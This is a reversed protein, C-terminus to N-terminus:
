RQGHRRTSLARNHDSATWNGDLVNVIEVKSRAVIERVGDLRGQSSSTTFRGQVYLVKGGEPLLAKCQRGQIRGIENQDPTVSFCPLQPFESRLGDLYDVKRNLSVWPIGMRAADKAVRGLSNDQVPIALIAFPQNKPERNVYSYIQKIQAMLQSEAYVTVVEMDYSRAANKVEEAILQQYDNSSNVQSLVIYKKGAM